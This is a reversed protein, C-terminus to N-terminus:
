LNIKSSKVTRLHCFAVEAFVNAVHTGILPSYKNRQKYDEYEGGVGNLDDENGGVHRVPTSHRLQHLQRIVYLLVHGNWCLWSVVMVATGDLVARTLHKCDVVADVVAALEVTPVAAQHDSIFRGNDLTWLPGVVLRLEDGGDDTRYFLSLIFNPM